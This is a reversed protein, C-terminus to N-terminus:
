QSTIYVRKFKFALKLEIDSYINFGSSKWQELIFKTILIPNSKNYILFPESLHLAAKSLDDSTMFLPIILFIKNDGISSLYSLIFNYTFDNFYVHRWGSTMDVKLNSPINKLFSINNTTFNM